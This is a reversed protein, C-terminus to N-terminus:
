SQGINNRCFLIQHKKNFIVHTLPNKHSGYSWVLTSIWFINKRIEGCFSINHTSMLLAETIHKHASILFIDPGMQEFSVVNNTSTDNFSKDNFVAYISNNKSFFM